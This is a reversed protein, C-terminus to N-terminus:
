KKVLVQTSITNDDSIVKLFYVGSASTSLDIVGSHIGNAANINKVAVEEGLMNVVVLNLNAAKNFNVDLNFIGNSPNPYVAITGLGAIEEIGVTTVTVEETYTNTGCANTVTLTVTYTGAASYVYTPNEESSTGVGDGFDWAYTGAGGTSTNTFLGTAYSNTWSYSSVPVSNEIVTLSETGSGCADTVDLTYTGGATVVLTDFPSGGTWAYTDFVANSSLTASGGTCFELTDAVLFDTYVDASATVVMTDAGTGCVSTISVFYIGPASVDISITTDGTSWLIMDSPAGASLTVVEGTCAEVDDGLFNGSLSSFEDAGMDPAVADRMQADIDYMVGAIPTGLGGASDNCVHLDYTSHFMPDMDYSNADGGFAAQWDALTSQNSNAFYGVNGSPSHFLNYDGSVVTYNSALYIAFGATYNVFMNNTLTNGGGSTGYFARSSTGGESIFASNHEVDVYGSNSLYIGYFTGTSGSQGVQVMNNKLKAHNVASADNNLCYIGYRWGTNPTGSIVNNEATFGNDNYNIYMAFRSGTYNSEGIFHNGNYIAADQYDFRAGYYYNDLFTNGEFITGSELDATGTGRWYAGYSGGEFINNLFTNDNDTGNTSFLIAYNTSTSTNTITHFHCNEFTNNDSGSDLWIIRGYSNGTNEFTMDEVTVYDTGSYRLVFNGAASAAAFSVTVLSADGNESRITINNTADTPIGTLDIQENYIGDRVDFVVAGCLGFTSMDSIATAFDAYDPTVGGITYTGALGAQLSSINAFDNWAGSPDEVVGNPMDTIATLMDGSTLPVLGLTVTDCDFPALAGTWAYLTPAGANLSWNINASVLTDTGYNKITVRISDTFSCTPLSPTVFEAIGADDTLPASINVTYDECEGYSYNNCAQGALIATTNYKGIVRLTTPGGPIGTPIAISASVTIGSGAYGIDFFEGADDFDGDQNLDIFAAMYQGFPTGSQVDITYSSGQQVNTSMATYDAYNNPGPNSCGTGTNSITNFTVGNIYDNSTCASNFTPLCQGWAVMGSLAAVVLLLSKKM